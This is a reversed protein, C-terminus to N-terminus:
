RQHPMITGSQHAVHPGEPILGSPASDSSRISRPRPSPTLNELSAVVLDRLFSEISCWPQPVASLAAREQRSFFLINRKTVELLAIFFQVCLFALGREQRTKPYETVRDHPLYPSRRFKGARGSESSDGEKLLKGMGHGINCVHVLRM